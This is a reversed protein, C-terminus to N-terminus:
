EEESKQSAGNYFQNNLRLPPFDIEQQPKSLWPIAGYNFSLIFTYVLIFTTTRFRTRLFV